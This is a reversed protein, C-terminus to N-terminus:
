AQEWQGVPQLLFSILCSKEDVGNCLVWTSTHPIILDQLAIHAGFLKHINVIHM